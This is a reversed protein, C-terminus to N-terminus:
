VHVQPICNFEYMSSFFHMSLEINLNTRLCFPNRKETIDYSQYDEIRLCNIRHVRSGLSDRVFFSFGYVCPHNEPVNKM